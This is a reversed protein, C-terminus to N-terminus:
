ERGKQEVEQLIMDPLILMRGNEARILIQFAENVEQIIIQDFRMDAKKNAEQCIAMANKVQEFTM